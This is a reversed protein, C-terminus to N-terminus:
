KPLALLMPGEGRSQRVARLEEILTLNRLKLQRNEEFLQEIKGLMSQQYSTIHQSLDTLM